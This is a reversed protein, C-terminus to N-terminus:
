KTNVAVIYLYDTYMASQRLKPCAYELSRKQEVRLGHKRLWRQLQKWFLAYHSRFTGGLTRKSCTYALICRDKRCMQMDIVLRVWVAITKLSAEADIFVVDMTRTWYGEQLVEYLEGELVTLGFARHLASTPRDREVVVIREKNTWHHELLMKSTHHHKGDLCFVDIGEAADPQLYCYIMHALHDNCKQKFLLYKKNYPKTTM